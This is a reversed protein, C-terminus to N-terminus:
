YLGPSATLLRSLFRFWNDGMIGEIAQDPYGAHALM